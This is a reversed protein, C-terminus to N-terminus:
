RADEKYMKKVETIAQQNYFYQLDSNSAINRPYSITYRESKKLQNNMSYFDANLKFGKIKDQLKKTFNEYTMISGNALGIRITEQRESNITNSSNKDYRYTYTTDNSVKKLKMETSLVVNHKHTTDSPYKALISNMYDYFKNQRDAMKTFPVSTAKVEDYFGIPMMYFNYKDLSRGFWDGCLEVFSKLTSTGVDRVVRGFGNQSVVFHTANDRIEMLANLNAILREDKICLEIAKSLNITLPNGTKKSPKPYKLKTPSGDKKKRHEMVYISRINSKNDKLIKAKLLLEWSNIMLIAFSEERYDFAPKNYVEISAIASEISKDVLKAYLATAM